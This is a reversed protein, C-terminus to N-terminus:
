RRGVRGDAREAVAAVFDDVAAVSAELRHRRPTVSAGGGPEVRRADEVEGAVLVEVEEGYVHEGPPRLHVADIEFARRHGDDLRGRDVVRRLEREDVNGGRLDEVDGGEM